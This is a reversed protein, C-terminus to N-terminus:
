EVQYGPKTPKPPPPESLDKWGRGVRQWFSLDRQPQGPGIQERNVSNPNVASGQFQDPSYATSRVVREQCSPLAMLTLLLLIHFADRM